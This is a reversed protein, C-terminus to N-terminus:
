SSIVLGAAHPQSTLFDLFAAHPRFNANWSSFNVTKGWFSQDSISYFMYLRFFLTHNM